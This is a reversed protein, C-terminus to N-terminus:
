AASRAAGPGAAGSGDASDDYRPRYSGTAAYHRLEPVLNADIAANGQYASPGIVLVPFVRFAYGLESLREECRAFGAASLIDVLELEASAGSAELAAPLDKDKFTDCHACGIEGYYEIRVPAREAPPLGAPTREAPALGAPEEASALTVSAFLAIYLVIRGILPAGDHKM